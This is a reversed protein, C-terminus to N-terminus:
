AVTSISDSEFYRLTTLAYSEAARLLSPISVYENAAHLGAGTPGYIVTPMGSDVLFNGDTVGELSGLEPLFGFAVRIAEQSLQVFPHSADTIAAPVYGIERMDYHIEPDAAKVKDLRNVLQSKVSDLSQGHSLRCDVLARCHEPFMNIATGGTIVTGPVVYPPTLMEHKKYKFKLSELALLLQAMKTVANIRNKPYGTHGTTGQTHLEFRYIGKAGIALTKEMMPECCIAVDAGVGYALAEKIGMHAGSEEDANFLLVLKGSLDPVLTKVAIAAFTAAAVAGKMDYAGRGYIRNGSVHASFPDYRWDADDGVSVTDLHGNLLISKRGKGIEAVLSKRSPLAGFLRSRIGHERLVAAIKKAVATENGNVSPIRVLEQTLQLLQARHRRLFIRISSLTTIGTRQNLSDKSYKFSSVMTFATNLM